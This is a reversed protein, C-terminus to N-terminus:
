GEKNHKLFEENIDLTAQLLKTDCGRRLCAQVIANVDKTLCKGSFGRAKPFVFTHDRSIRTDALWIERLINFDVGHAQAIDFFENVFTVKVAYFANEMYKAVEATMADCFFFRVMANYYHKYFDAAASRDEPTGGLVIFPMSAENTFVHATTEGSYEPQFVIRKNHQARLRDTTGPTITSRIIILPTQVWAVVEEVSSTDCAKDSGMPTPVCVFAVDCANVADKDQTFGPKVDYMVTEPGCLRAVTSGVVGAGVVGVRPRSSMM